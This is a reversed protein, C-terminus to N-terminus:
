SKEVSIVMNPVVSRIVAYDRVIIFQRTKHSIDTEWEVQKTEIVEGSREEKKGHIWRYFHIIDGPEISHNNEVTRVEYEANTEM